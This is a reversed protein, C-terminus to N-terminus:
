ITFSYVLEISDAEVMELNLIYNRTVSTGNDFFVKYEGLQRQSEIGNTIYKECLFEIKKVKM